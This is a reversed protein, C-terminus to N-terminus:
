HVSVIAIGKREGILLAPEFFRSELVDAGDFAGPGRRENQRRFILGLSCLSSRFTRENEERHERHYSKIVSAGDTAECVYVAPVIETASQYRAAVTSAFTDTQESRILAVACGGFGGGTMRIGLCAAHERGCEVMSDLERSSVAFHDRLSAHSANILQGLAIADGHRMAEAAQLTRTNESVM